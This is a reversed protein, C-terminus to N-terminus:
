TRDKRIVKYFDEMNAVLGMRAIWQVQNVAIHEELVDKVNGGKQKTTAALLDLEEDIQDILKSDTMHMTAIFVVAGAAMIAATKVLSGFM